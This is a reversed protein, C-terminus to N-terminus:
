NESIDKLNKLISIPKDILNLIYPIIFAITYASIKLSITLEIRLFLIIPVLIFLCDRILKIKWDNQCSLICAYRSKTRCYELVGNPPKKIDDRADQEPLSFLFMQIIPSIFPCNHFFFDLHKNRHTKMELKELFNWIEKRM